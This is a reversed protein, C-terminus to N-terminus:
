NYVANAITGVCIAESDGSGSCRWDLPLPKIISYHTCAATPPAYRIRQFCMEDALENCATFTNKRVVRLDRDSLRGKYRVGRKRTKKKRERKRKKKWGSALPTDARTSRANVSHPRCRQQNIRVREDTATRPQAESFTRHVVNCHADRSLAEAFSFIKGYNLEERVTICQEKTERHADTIWKCNVNRNVQEHMRNHRHSTCLFLSRQVTSQTCKTAASRQLVAWHAPVGNHWVSGM